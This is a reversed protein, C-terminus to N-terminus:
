RGQPAGCSMCFKSTQASLGGCYKCPIMVVERTIVERQFTPVQPAAQPPPHSAAYQEHAAVGALFAGSTPIPPPPSYTSYPIRAERSEQLCKPCQPEKRLLGTRVRPLSSYCKKCYPSGCTPCPTLGPNHM